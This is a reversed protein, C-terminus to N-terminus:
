SADCHGRRLRVDVAKAYVTASASGKCRHGGYSYGSWKCSYRRGALHTCWATADMVKQDDYNEGEVENTVAVAARHGPGKPKAAETAAPSALALTVILFATLRQM